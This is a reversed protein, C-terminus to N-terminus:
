NMAASFVVSGIYEGSSAMSWADAEFEISLTIEKPVAAKIEDSTWVENSFESGAKTVKFPIGPVEQPNTSAKFDKKEKVSVTIAKGAEINGQVSLKGIQQTQQDYDINTSTIPISLEYSAPVTAKLTITGEQDDAAQVRLPLWGLMMAMGALLLKKHKM